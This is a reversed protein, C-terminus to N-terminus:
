NGEIAIALVAALLHGFHMRDHIANGRPNIAGVANQLQSCAIAEKKLLTLDYFAKPPSTLEPPGQLPASLVPGRRRARERILNLIKDIQTQDASTPM